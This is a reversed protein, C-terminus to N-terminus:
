TIHSENILNKEESSLNVIETLIYQYVTIIAVDYVTNMFINIPSKLNADDANM